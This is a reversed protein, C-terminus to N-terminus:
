PMRSDFPLSVQIGALGINSVIKVPQQQQQTTTIMKVGPSNAPSVTVGVPIASIPTM